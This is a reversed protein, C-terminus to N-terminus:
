ALHRELKRFFSSMQEFVEEILKIRLLFLHLHPGITNTNRRQFFYEQFYAMTVFLFFIPCNGM